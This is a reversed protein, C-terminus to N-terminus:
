SRDAVLRPNDCGLVLDLGLVEYRDFNSLEQPIRGHHVRFAANWLHDQAMERSAAVEM